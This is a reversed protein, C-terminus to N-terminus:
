SRHVAFPSFAQEVPMVEIRNVNVFRRACAGGIGSTAGTIFAVRGQM